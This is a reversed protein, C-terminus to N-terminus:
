FSPFSCGRQDQAGPVRLRLLAENSPRVYVLMPTRGLSSLCALKSPCSLLRWVMRRARLVRVIRCHEDSARVSPWDPSPTFHSTLCHGGAASHEIAAAPTASVGRGIPHFISLWPVIRATLCDPLLTLCVRWCYGRRCRM